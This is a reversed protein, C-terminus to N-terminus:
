IDGYDWEEPTYHELFNDLGEKTDAYVTNEFDGWVTGFTPHIAEFENVWTFYDEKVDGTVLWGSEGLGLVSPSLTLASYVEFQKTIMM